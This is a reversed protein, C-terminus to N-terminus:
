PTDTKVRTLHFQRCSVCHYISLELEPDTISKEEVVLEAAQRTTYCYKGGCTKPADFQRAIPKKTRAM